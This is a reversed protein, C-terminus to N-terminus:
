PLDFGNIGKRTAFFYAPYPGLPAANAFQFESTQPTLPAHIEFFYMLENNPPAWNGAPQLLSYGPAPTLGGTPSTAAIVDNIKVTRASNDTLAVCVRSGPTNWSPTIGGRGQYFDAREFLLVKKSTMPVDSYRNRRIPFPGNTPAIVRDPGFLSFQQPKQWFVPPYWYSGPFIWTMDTQADGSVTERLMRLLAKDAPAWGSKLRSINESDAYMTHSLWHYAYTETGQNSQQGNGYDWAYNMGYGSGLWNVGVTCRDDWPTTPINSPMFPNVFEDKNQNAYMAITVSNQRLNSLSVSRQGETRAKGLAPLLISILLAIIAIVVLLEILTFGTRRAM